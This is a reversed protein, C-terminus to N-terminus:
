LSASGIPAVAFMLPGPNISHASAHWEDYVESQLTYLRSAIAALFGLFFIM